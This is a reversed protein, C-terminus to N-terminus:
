KPARLRRPASLSSPASRSMCDAPAPARRGPQRRYQEGRRAPRASTCNSQRARSPLRHAALESALSRVHRILVRALLQEMQDEAALKDIQAPVFELVKILEIDDANIRVIGASIRCPLGLRLLSNVIGLHAIEDDVHMPQEIRVRVPPCPM